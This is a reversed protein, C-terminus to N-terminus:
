GNLQSWIQLIFNLCACSLNWLIERLYKSGYGCIGWIHSDQKIELFRFGKFIDRMKFLELFICCVDLDSSVLKLVVKRFNARVNKEEILLLVGLQWVHM